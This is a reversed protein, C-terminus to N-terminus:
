DNQSNGLLLKLRNVENALKENELLLAIMIDKMDKQFVQFRQLATKLEENYLIEAKQKFVEADHSLM